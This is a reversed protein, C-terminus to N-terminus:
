LGQEHFLVLLKNLFCMSKVEGVISRELLGSNIDDDEVVINRVDKQDRVNEDNSENRVDHYKTHEDSKHKNIKEDARIGERVVDVFSRNDCIGSKAVKGNGGDHFKQRIDGVKPNRRDFAVYVSLLEGEVQIKRLRGFLGEVDKIYKFHVFGYR